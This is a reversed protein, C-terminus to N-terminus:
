GMLRRFSRVQRVEWGNRRLAGISAEWSLSSWKFELRLRGAFPIKLAGCGRVGIADVLELAASRASSPGGILGRRTEEDFRLGVVVGDRTLVAKRRM